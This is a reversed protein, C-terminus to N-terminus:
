ERELLDVTDAARFTWWRSQKEIHGKLRASVVRSPLPQSV